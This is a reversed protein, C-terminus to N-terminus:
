INLVVVYLIVEVEGEGGETGIESLRWVHGMRVIMIRRVLRGLVCILVNRDWVVGIIKSANRLLLVAAM